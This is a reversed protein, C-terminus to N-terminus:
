LVSSSVPLESSSDFLVRNVSPQMLEKYKSGTHFVYFLALTAALAAGISFSILTRRQVKAKPKLKEWLSPSPDLTLVQAMEVKRKLDLYDVLIEPDTLMEREVLTRQEETVSGFYFPLLLKKFESNM